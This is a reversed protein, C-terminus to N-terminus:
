RGSAYFAAAMTGSPVCNIPGKTQPSTGTFDFTINDGEVTVSVEIRVRKDLEVGDNDLHDVYNFTGQPLKRIAQRTMVESRDILESFGSALYNGGYREALDVLRRAGIKCAAIQANLDGMFVDPLRVNLKLLSVLTDNMVGADYLKLAPIRIGEQFIETANTPVSGSVMGGVDQHHTMAGTLAIVRGQFFVPMVVALDPLHTGGPM